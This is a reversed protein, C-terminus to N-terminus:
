CWSRALIDNMTKGRWQRTFFMEGRFRIGLSLGQVSTKEQGFTGQICFSDCLISLGM